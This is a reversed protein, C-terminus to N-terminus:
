GHLFLGLLATASGIALAVAHTWVFARGRKVPLEIREILPLATLFIGILLAVLLLKLAFAQGYPGLSWLDARWLGREHALWVGSAVIAVLAGGVVRRLRGKIERLLRYWERREMGSGRVAPRLVLLFYAIAGFWVVVGALHVWLLLLRLSLM